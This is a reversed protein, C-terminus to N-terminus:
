GRLSFIQVRGREAGPRGRMRPRAPRSVAGGTPRAPPEGSGASFNRPLARETAPVPAPPLSQLSPSFGAGPVPKYDRPTNLTLVTFYFCAPHASLGAQFHRSPFSGGAQTTQETSISVNLFFYVSKNRFPDKRFDPDQLFTAAPQEGVDLSPDRRWSPSQEGPM